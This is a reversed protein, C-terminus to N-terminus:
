PLESFTTINISTEMSSGNEQNEPTFRGPKIEKGDPIREEAFELRLYGTLNGYIAGGPASQYLRGIFLTPQHEKGIWPVASQRVWVSV